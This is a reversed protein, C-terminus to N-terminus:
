RSQGGSRSSRRYKLPTCGKHRRFMRIFYSVNEYGSELATDLVSMDTDRLLTCALEIRRLNLYGTFSQGTEASFMRSFYKESVHFRKAMDALTLPETCNDNIFTLINKLRSNRRRLEEDAARYPKVLRDHRILEATFRLLQAKIFLECGSFSSKRASLIGELLERLVPSQKDDAPIYEPFLLSGEELLRLTRDASDPTSFVLSGTPFIFAGYSLQKDESSIRHLEESNIIFIDGQGAEYENRSVTVSCSGRHVLLIEINKHWHLNVFLQGNENATDFFEMPFDHTGHRRSEHLRRKETYIM